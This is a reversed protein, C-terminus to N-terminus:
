KMKRALPTLSWASRINVYSRGDALAALVADWTVPDAVDANAELWDRAVVIRGGEPDGFLDLCADM